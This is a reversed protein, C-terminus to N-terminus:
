QMANEQVMRSGKIMAIATETNERNFFSQCLNIIVEKIQPTARIQTSQQDFYSNNKLCCIWQSMITSCQRNVIPTFTLRLCITTTQPPIKRQHCTQRTIKAIIATCVQNIHFHRQATLYNAFKCPYKKSKKTELDNEFKFENFSGISIADDFSSM